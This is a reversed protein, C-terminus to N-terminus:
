FRKSFFGLLPNTVYNIKRKMNLIESATGYYPKVREGGQYSPSVLHGDSLWYGVPRTYGFLPGEDNRFKDEVKRQAEIMENKKEENSYGYIRNSPGRLRQGTAECRVILIGTACQLIAVIPKELVNITEPIIRETPSFCNM